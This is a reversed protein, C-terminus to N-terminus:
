QSRHRARRRDDLRGTADEEDSREDKSEAKLECRVEGTPLMFVRWPTEFFEGTLVDGFGGSVRRYRPKGTRLIGQDETLSRIFLEQAEADSYDCSRSSGDAYFCTLRHRGDPLDDNTRSVEPNNADLVEQAERAEMQREFLEGALWRPRFKNRVYTTNHKSLGGSGHIRVGKPFRKLADPTIKSVYKVMYGVPNRATQINSFGHHWWGSDDPRPLRISRPVFVLIHYHLAGRKQLEAVWVFRCKHPQEQGQEDVYRQRSFWQRMLRIYRSIHGPNWDDVNRYTLTIFTRRFSRQGLTEALWDSEQELSSAFNIVSRQLHMVRM